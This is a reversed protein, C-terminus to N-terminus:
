PLTACVADLGSLMVTLLRAVLPGIVSVPAVMPPPLAPSKATVPPLQPADNAADDLQVYATVNVGLMSLASLPVSDIPTACSGLPPGDATGSLPVPTVGSLASGALMAKPVMAPPWEDTFLVTVIVLLPLAVSVILSFTVLVVLLAVSKATVPPVHVVSGPPDSAPPPACQV